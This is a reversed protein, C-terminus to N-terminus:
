LMSTKDADPIEDIVRKKKTRRYRHNSTGYGGLNIPTACQGSEDKSRGKSAPISASEGEGARLAGKRALWIDNFIVINRIRIKRPM